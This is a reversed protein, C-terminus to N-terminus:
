QMWWRPIGGTGDGDKGVMVAVVVTAQRTQMVLGAMMAVVVTPQRPQMGM